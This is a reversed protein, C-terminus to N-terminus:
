VRVIVVAIASSVLLPSRLRASASPMMRMKSDVLTLATLKNKPRARACRQRANGTRHKGYEQRCWRSPALEDDDQAASFVITRRQHSLVHDRRARGEVDVM